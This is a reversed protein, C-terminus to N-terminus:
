YARGPVEVVEVQELRLHQLAARVAVVVPVAGRVRLLQATEAVLDPLHEAVRDPYGAPVCVVDGRGDRDVERVAGLDDQAREAARGADASEGAVEDAVEVRDVPVLELDRERRAVHRD